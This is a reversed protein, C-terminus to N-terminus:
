KKYSLTLKHQAESNRLLKGFKAKHIEYKKKNKSGSVKRIEVKKDIDTLCM